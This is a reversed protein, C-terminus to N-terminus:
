SIDFCVHTAIVIYAYLDIPKYTNTELYIPIYNQVEEMNMLEVNKLSEFLDDNKKKTYSIVGISGKM